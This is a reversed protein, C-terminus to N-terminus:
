EIEFIDIEMWYEPSKNEENFADCITEAKKLSDVVKVVCSTIVYDLSNCESLVYVRSM